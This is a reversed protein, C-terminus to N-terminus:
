WREVWTNEVRNYTCTLEQFGKEQWRLAKDWWRILISKRGNSDFWVICSSRLFYRQKEQYNSSGQVSNLNQSKPVYLCNWGKAKCHQWFKIVMQVFSFDFTAFCFWSYLCLPKVHELWYAWAWMMIISTLVFNRIVVTWLWMKTKFSVLCLRLCLLWLMNHAHSFEFKMIVSNQQSPNFFLQTCSIINWTTDFVTKMNKYDTRTRNWFAALRFKHYVLQLLHSLYNLFVYLLYASLKIGQVTALTAPKSKSVEHVSDLKFIYEM